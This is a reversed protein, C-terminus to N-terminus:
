YNTNTPFHISNSHFTKTTFKRFNIFRRCEDTINLFVPNNRTEVSSPKDYSKKVIQIIGGKAEEIKRSIDLMDNYIARYGTVLADCKECICIWNDVKPCNKLYNSLQTIPVQFINRLIFIVDLHKSLLSKKDCNQGPRIEDKSKIKHHSSLESYCVLCRLM